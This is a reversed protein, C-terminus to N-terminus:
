GNDKDKKTGNYKVLKQLIMDIIVQDKSSIKPTHWDSPIIKSKIAADVDIYGDRMYVEWKSRWSEYHGTYHSGTPGGIILCGDGQDRLFGIVNTHNGDKKVLWLIKEKKPLKM